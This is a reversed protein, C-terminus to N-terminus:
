ISSRPWPRRFSGCPPGRMSTSTSAYDALVIFALLACPRSVQMRPLLVKSRLEQHIM